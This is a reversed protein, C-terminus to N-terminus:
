QNIKLVFVLYISPKHNVNIVTLLSTFTYSHCLLPHRRSTFTHTHAHMCLHLHLLWLTAGHQLHLTHTHQWGSGGTSTSFSGLGVCWCPWPRGFLNCVVQLAALVRRLRYFWDLSRHSRHLAQEQGSFSGFKERSSGDPLLM